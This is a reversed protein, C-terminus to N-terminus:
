SPSLENKIFWEQICKGVIDTLAQPRQEDVVWKINNFSVNGFLVKNLVVHYSKPSGDEHTKESPTVIGDYHIGDHDFGINFYDERM